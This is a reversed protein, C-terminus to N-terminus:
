GAVDVPSGHTMEPFDDELKDRLNAILLAFANFVRESDPDHSHSALLFDALHPSEKAGHQALERLYSRERLYMFKRNNSM